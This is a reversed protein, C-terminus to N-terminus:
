TEWDMITEDFVVKIFATDGRQGIEKNEVIPCRRSCLIKGKQTKAIELQPTLHRQRDKDVTSGMFGRLVLYIYGFEEKKSKSFWGKKESEPAKEDPKGNDKITLTPKNVTGGDTVTEVKGLDVIEKEKIPTDATGEIEDVVKEVKTEVDPKVEKQVAKEKPVESGIQKGKKDEIEQCARCLIKKYKNKSFTAVGTTVEAGCEKNSCFIKEKEVKEVKKNEDM